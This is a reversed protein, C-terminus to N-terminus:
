KRYEGSTSRSHQQAASDKRPDRSQAGSTTQQQQQQEELKDVFPSYPAAVSFERGRDSSNYATNGPWRQQQEHMSELPAGVVHYKDWNIHPTRVVNQPGPIRPFKESDTDMKSSFVVEEDDDDDGEADLIAQLDGIKPTHEKLRGAQLERRFQEPENLALKKIEALTQLDDQAKKKQIQLTSIAARLAIADTADDGSFPQNPPQKIYQTPPIQPKKTAAHNQHQHPEPPTFDFTGGNDPPPVFQQGSVPLAPQVKPTIPSYAPAVPSSPSPHQTTDIDPM